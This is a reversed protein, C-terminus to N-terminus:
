DVWATTGPGGYLGKGHSRLFCDSAVPYLERGEAVGTPPRRGVGGHSRLFCDSVVPYFERGEPVDTPPRRGVDGSLGQRGKLWLGSPDAHRVPGTM